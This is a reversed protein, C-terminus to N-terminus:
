LSVQGIVYENDSFRLGSFMLKNTGAIFVMDYIEIENRGDFVVIENGSQTDYLILRNVDNKDLGTLILTNLVRRGITYNSISTEAIKLAPTYRVLDTDAGSNGALVWTQKTSPFIFSELIYTGGSNFFGEYRDFNYSGMEREFDHLDIEADNNVYSYAFPATILRSESLSYRLVEEWRQNSGIWLNGDSFKQMFQCNAKAKITTLKGVSSLKRIWSSGSSATTGCHIVDKNLAVYFSNIQINANILNKIVGNTNRRLVTNSGSQGRYYIAGSSDFQVPPPLVGEEGTWDISDLSSDICTPVGTASNIKVLLCDPGGTVLPQKSELTAYVADNPDIFFNAVRVDGNILPDSQSGDAELKYFGSSNGPMEPQALAVADSMDFIVQDPDSVYRVQNEIFVSLGDGGRFSRISASKKFAQVNQLKMSSTSLVKGKNRKTASSGKVQFFVKTNSKATIKKTVSSSKGHKNFQTAIVKVNSNLPVKKITCSGYSKSITCSKKGLSVKIKPAPKVANGGSNNRMAYVTVSAFKKSTQKSVIKTITPLLDPPDALAPILPWTALAMSLTTM